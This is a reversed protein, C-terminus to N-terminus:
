AAVRGKKLRQAARKNAAEGSIKKARKAAERCNQQPKAATRHTRTPM